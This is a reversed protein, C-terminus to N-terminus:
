ANTLSLTLCISATICWFFHFSIIQGFVFVMWIIPTAYLATWFVWSDMKAGTNSELKELEKKADM